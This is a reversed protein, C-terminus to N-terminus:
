FAHTRRLNRLLPKSESGIETLSKRRGLITRRRESQTEGKVVLRGSWFKRSAIVKPQSLIGAINTIRGNTNRLQLLLLCFYLFTRRSIPKLFHPEVIRSREDPAQM